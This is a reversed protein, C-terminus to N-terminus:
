PLMFVVKSKVILNYKTLIQVSVLTIILSSFCNILFFLVYKIKDHNFDTEDAKNKFNILKRKKLTVNNLNFHVNSYIYRLECLNLYFCKYHTSKKWVLRFINRLVM